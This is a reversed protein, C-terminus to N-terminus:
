DVLRLATLVAMAVAWLGVTSFGLKEAMWGVKNEDM